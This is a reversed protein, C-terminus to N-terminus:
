HCGNRRCTQSENEIQDSMEAIITAIVGLAGIKKRAGVM